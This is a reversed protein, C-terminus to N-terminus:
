CWWDVLLVSEVIKRAPFVSIEDAALWYCVLKAKSSTFLYGSQHFLTWILIGIKGVGTVALSM